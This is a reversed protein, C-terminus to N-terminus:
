ESEKECWTYSPLCKLTNEKTGVPCGTEPILVARKAEMNSVSSLCCSESDNEYCQRALGQYYPRFAHIIRQESKYESYKSIGTAIGVLSLLVLFVIIIAPLSRSM